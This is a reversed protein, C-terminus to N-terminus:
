IGMEKESYLTGDDLWTRRTGVAEGEHYTMKIKVQGNSYWQTENGHKVSNIYRGKNILSYTIESKLQGSKYWAKHTGLKGHEGKLGQRRLQGNDYWENELYEGAQQGHSIHYKKAGNEYWETVPESLKGLEFQRIKDLGGSKFWYYQLENTYGEIKNREAQRINSNKYYTVQKGTETVDVRNLMGEHSFLHEFGYYEDARYSRVTRLMGDIYFQRIGQLKDGLFFAMETSQILLSEGLEYEVFLGERSDANYFTESKLRGDPFYYRNLGMKKDNLYTEEYSVYDQDNKDQAWRTHNGSMKGNIMTAEIYRHGGYWRTHEGNEIGYQYGLRSTPYYVVQGHSDKKYENQSFKHEIGHKKGDLWHTEEQLRGDEFWYFSPGHRSGNLYYAEAQKNGNDHYSTAVGTYPMKTAEALAIHERGQRKFELDSFPVAQSTASFLLCYSLLVVSSGTLPTVNCRSWPLSM